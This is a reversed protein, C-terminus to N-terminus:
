SHGPPYDRFTVLRGLRKNRKLVKEVVRRRDPPLYVRQLKHEYYVGVIEKGVLDQLRSLNINYHPFKRFRHTIEFVERTFSGRYAKDFPTKTVVMRVTDGVSFVFLKIKVANAKARNVRDLHQLKSMKGALEVDISGPKFGHHGHRSDNHNVVVIEVLEKIKCNPSAQKMCYFVKQFDRNFREVVAAKKESNVVFHKIRKSKCYGQFIKNLFEKGEDTQMTNPWRGNRRCIKDFAQIVKAASKNTLVEADVKRSFVDLKALIFAYVGRSNNKKHLDILDVQWLSDLGPASYPLTAKKGNRVDRIIQNPRVVEAEFRKVVRLPINKLGLEDRLYEHVVFSSKFAVPSKDIDYFLTNLLRGLENNWLKTKYGYSGYRCFIVFFKCACILM